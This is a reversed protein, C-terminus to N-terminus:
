VRKLTNAKGDVLAVVVDGEHAEITEKCIVIDGSDIGADVMSEGNVVLTFFNGSKGGLFSSPISVYEDVAGELEDAPGAPISDLYSRSLRPNVDIKDILDTRVKGHDYRIMGLEDMAKLYRSATSYNIGHTAGIDRVTPTTGHHNLAYEEVYSKIKEMLGRDKSRM